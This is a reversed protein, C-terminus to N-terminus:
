CVEITRPLIEGQEGDIMPSDDDQKVRDIEVDPVAPNIQAEDNYLCTCCSLCVCEFKRNLVNSGEKKRSWYYYLQQYCIAIAITSIATVAWWFWQLEYFKTEGSGVPQATPTSTPIFGKIGCYIDFCDMWFGCRIHLGTIVENEPCKV